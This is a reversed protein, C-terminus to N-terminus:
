AKFNNLEQQIEKISIFFWGIEDDSAFTGKEDIENLRNDSLQILDSLRTVYGELKEVKKLLNAIIYISLVVLVIAITFIIIM